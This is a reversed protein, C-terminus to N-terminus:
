LTGVDGNMNISGIKKFILDALQVLVDVVQEMVMLKHETTLKDWIAYMHIGLMRKMLVFATGVPHTPDLNVYYTEPVAISTHQRVYKVTAVESEPVM